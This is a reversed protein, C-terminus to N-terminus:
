APAERSGKRLLLTVWTEPIFRLGHTRFPGAFYQRARLSEFGLGGSEFDPTREALLAEFGGPVPPDAPVHLASALIM